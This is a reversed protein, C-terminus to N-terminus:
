RKHERNLWTISTLRVTEGIKDEPIDTDKLLNDAKKKLWNLAEHLSNHLINGFSM